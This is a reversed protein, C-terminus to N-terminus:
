APTFLPTFLISNKSQLSMEGGEACGTSALLFWRPPQEPGTRVHGASFLLVAGVVSITALGVAVGVKDM